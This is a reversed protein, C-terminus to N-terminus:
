INVKFHQIKNQPKKFVNFTESLQFQYISVLRTLAKDRYFYDYILFLCIKEIDRYQDNLCYLDVYLYNDKKLLTIIAFVKENQELVIYSAERQIWRKLEPIAKYKLYMERGDKRDIFIEKFDRKFCTNIALHSISNTLEQHLQGLDYNLSEILSEINSYSKLFCQNLEHTTILQKSEFSQSESEHLYVSYCPAKKEIAIQKAIKILVLETQRQYIPNLILGKFIPFPFRWSLNEHTKRKNWFIKKSFREINLCAIAIPDNRHQDFFLYYHFFINDSATKEAQKLWDVDPIYASFLEILAPLFEDDIEDLSHYKQTILM